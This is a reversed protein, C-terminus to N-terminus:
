YVQALTEVLVNRVIDAMTKGHKAAIVKLRTHLSIPTDITLRKKQKKNKPKAKQKPILLRIKKNKQTM